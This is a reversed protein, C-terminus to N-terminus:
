TRELKLSTKASALVIRWANSPGKKRPTANSNETNSPNVEENEDYSYSRENMLLQLDMPDLYHTEGNPQIISTPNSKEFATENQNRRAIMQHVLFKEYDSAFIPSVGDARGEEELFLPGAGGLTAGMVAILAVVKLTAM